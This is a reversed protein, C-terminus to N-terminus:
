ECQIKYKLIKQMVQINILCWWWDNKEVQCKEDVMKYGFKCSQCFRYDIHCNQCNLDSCPKCDGKHDYGESGM